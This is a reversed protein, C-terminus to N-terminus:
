HGHRDRRRPPHPRRPGEPPRRRRNRIMAARGLFPVTMTTGDPAELEVTVHDVLAEAFTLGAISSLIDIRMPEVGLSAMRDPKAFHTVAAESTEVFGFARLADALRRANEATPEVLVDIDRTPRALGLVALAHAAVVLYRVGHSTLCALFESFPPPLAPNM